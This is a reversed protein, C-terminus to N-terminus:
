QNTVARTFRRHSLTRVSVSAARASLSSAGRQLRPIRPAQGAARQDFALEALLLQGVGVGITEHVGLPERRRPEGELVGTDGPVQQQQRADAAGIRAEVLGHLCSSADVGGLDHEKSSM